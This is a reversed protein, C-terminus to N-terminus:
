NLGQVMRAKRLLVQRGQSVVGRPLDAKDLGV